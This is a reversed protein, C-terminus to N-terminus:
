LPFWRWLLLLKRFVMRWNDTDTLVTTWSGRDKAYLGQLEDLYSYETFFFMIWYFHYFLVASIRCLNPSFENTYLIFEASSNLIFEASSNVECTPLYVTLLPPLLHRETLLFELLHGGSGHAAPVPPAPSWSWGRRPRHRPLVQSDRVAFHRDPPANNDNAKTKSM